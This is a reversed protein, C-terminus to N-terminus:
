SIFAVETGEDYTLARSHAMIAAVALDIKAGQVQKVIRSGRMDEKLVANRVHRALRPDGDHTLRKELVATYFERTAPTMRSATPPWEVIPAEAEAWDMLKSRWYAPDCAVEAVEYDDLAQFLAAEVEDSPVVWAQAEPPREWAAVTFIHKDEIRCGVIATSDNSWSGDFGLVVPEDAAVTKIEDKVADWAGHPLWANHGSVWLNLRKTKYENEPTQPPMASDLDAPDLVTGFSPNSEHRAKANGLKSDPDRPEYWSFGFTKDPHEGAAIQVGYDYLTKCVTPKGFRDGMVGATTIMIMLPDVRTGMALSMVDYLERDPQAHLEDFIVTSPNYGEKRFAERSLARYISGAAPYEIENKRIKLVAALEPSMEVMAKAANFVLKAQERDAACSYVEAGDTDILLGYLALVAALASKGNKRAVGLLYRRFLRKGTKPDRAYIRLIVRVQWPLWDIPSGRKGSIVDLHIRGYSAAFDLVYAGDGANIEAKTVPSEWKPAVYKGSPIKEGPM